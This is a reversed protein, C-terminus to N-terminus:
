LVYERSWALQLHCHTATLLVCRVPKCAHMGIQERYVTNRLVTTGTASSLQTSLNSATRWRNIKTAVPLYWDENPTIVRPLGTSYRRSVHVDGQFRQRLVEGPGALVLIPNSIAPFVNGSRVLKTELQISSISM